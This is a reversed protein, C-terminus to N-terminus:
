FSVPMDLYLFSLSSRRGQGGAHSQSHLPPAVAFFHHAISDLFSDWTLAHTGSTKVPMSCSALAMVGEKLPSHLLGPATERSKHKSDKSKKRKEVHKWPKQPNRKPGVAQNALIWLADKRIPFCYPKKPEHDSSSYKTQDKSSNKTQNPPNSLGSLFLLPFTALLLALEFRSKVSTKFSSSSLYHLVM